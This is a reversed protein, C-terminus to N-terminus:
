ATGKEIAKTLVLYFGMNKTASVKLVAKEIKIIKTLMLVGTRCLPPTVRFHLCTRLCYPDFPRSISKTEARGM